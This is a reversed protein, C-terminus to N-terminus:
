ADILAPLMLGLWEVAGDRWRIGTANSKGELTDM